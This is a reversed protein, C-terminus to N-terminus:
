VKSDMVMITSLNMPFIFDTSATMIKDVVIRNAKETLHYQDWFVHQSRDECVFSTPNCFGLGNYPGQGCCAIKSTTFGYKKPDTIFDDQLIDLNVGVFIDSKYNTNLEKLMQILQPNFINAAQQLETACEGNKSRLALEAPACGLPGNGTVLVRRAGMDYLSTLIPKFESILFPVYDHLSFQKSRISHPVLFYNNVFDNGGVVVLFLAGNVLEKAKDAGVHAILRQQYQKFYNLQQFMRIIDVFQIGTDNLIGVGASAFNAGILLRDGQLLPHLCPLAPEAGIKESIIDAINLGNSFRGTAKHTPYDIGYPPKDARAATALFDNNGADVLSDGFVFFARVSQNLVAQARGFGGFVMLLCLVVICPVVVKKSAM